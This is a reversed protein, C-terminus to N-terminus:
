SELRSGMPVPKGSATDGSPSDDSLVRRRWFLALLRNEGLVRQLEKFAFFPIFAVLTVVCRALLEYRGRAAIEEFGGMVGKGHLLAKVTAELVSFLGVWVSFVVTRFLTPLILPRDDMRRGLRLLDGIMIVKALIAAEILPFWYDTYAIQYEALILRRYSTFAVFFFALYAFDIGYEILEHVITRKWGAPSTRM